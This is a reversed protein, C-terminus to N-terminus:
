PVHDLRLHPRGDHPFRYPQCHQTSRLLSSRVGMLIPTAEQPTMKMALGGNVKPRVLYPFMGGDQFSLQRYKSLITKTGRFRSKGHEVELQPTYKKLM